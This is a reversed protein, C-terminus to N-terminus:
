AEIKAVPYPEVVEGEPLAYLHSYILLSGDGFDIQPSDEGFYESLTKVKGGVKITAKPGARQPYRAGDDSFVIEFEASHADSCVAFRLPGTREHGLLEIDCETLLVPQDGFSIEVRDEIQMLLSEPWHIAVPPVAPRESIQRPRM